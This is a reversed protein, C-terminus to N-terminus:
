AKEAARRAAEERAPKAEEELRRWRSRWVSWAIIQDADYHPLEFRGYKMGYSMRQLEEDSHAEVDYRDCLAEFAERSSQRPVEEAAARIREKAATIEELYAIAQEPAAEIAGRMKDWAARVEEEGPSQYTFPLRDPADEVDSIPNKAEGDPTMIGTEFLDIQAVLRRYSRSGVTKTNITLKAVPRYYESPGGGGSRTCSVQVSLHVQPCNVHERPADGFPDPLREVAGEPLEDRDFLATPKPPYQQTGRTVLVPTAGVTVWCPPANLPSNTPTDMHDTPTDM